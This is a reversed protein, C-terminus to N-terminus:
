KEVAFNNIFYTQEHRNSCMVCLTINKIVGNTESSGERLGTLRKGM